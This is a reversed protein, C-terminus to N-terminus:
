KAIVHVNNFDISHGNFWAHNANIPIRAYRLLLQIPCSSLVMVWVINFEKRFEM